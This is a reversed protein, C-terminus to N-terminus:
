HEAIEIRVMKEDDMITMGWMQQIKISFEDHEVDLIERNRLEGFDDIHGAKEVVIFIENDNMVQIGDENEMEDLVVINAGRYKGLKGTMEIERKTDESYGEFDAIPALAGYTGLITPTGHKAVMRLAENLSQKTIELNANVCKVYNVGAQSTAERIAGFIHRNYLNLLAERAGERLEAVTHINGVELQLLDCAPRVAFIDPQVTVNDHFIRSKPVYGGHTIQYARFKGRKKYVVKENLGRKKVGGFFLNRIDYVPLEEALDEVILNALEHLGEPTKAMEAIRASLDQAEENYNGISTNEYKKALEFFKQRQAVTYAM